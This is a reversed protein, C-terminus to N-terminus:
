ALRAVDDRRIAEREGRVIAGEGGSSRVALRGTATRSALRGRTAVALALAVSCLLAVTLALFPRPPVVGLAGNLTLTTNVSYHLCALVALSGATTNSLWTFIVQQAITALVFVLFPYVSQGTGPILWLIGHWGGWIAGLLLSARVPGFRAQLRPLAFGRWGAQEGIPGFTAGLIFLAALAAPAPLHMALTGGGAAYLAVAVLGLLPFLAVALLYWVPRARWRTWGALAARLGAPGGTVGGVILAAITPAYVGLYFLPVFPVTFPLLGHGGAIIVLGLGWTLAFCLAFFTVLPHRAVTGRPTSAPSFRTTQYTTTMNKGEKISASPRHVQNVCPIVAAAHAIEQGTAL